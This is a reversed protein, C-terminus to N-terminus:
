TCLGFVKYLPCFKIASTGLLIAGVVAAVWLGAGSLSTFALALLAVGILARAIQDIRGVSGSVCDEM